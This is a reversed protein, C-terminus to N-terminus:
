QTIKQRYKANDMHLYEEQGFNEKVQYFFLLKGQNEQIQTSRHHMAKQEFIENARNRTVHSLTNIKNPKMEGDSSKIKYIYSLGLQDLVLTAKRFWNSVGTDMKQEEYCQKALRNDALNEFRLLYKVM